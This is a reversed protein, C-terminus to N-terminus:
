GSSPHIPDHNMARAYTTAFGSYGESTSKLYARTLTHFEPLKHFPVNPFAHHEAHYPMNWALFRVARTTFTTRSNELMDAVPPCLGHEALLYLRLFPQGILVPLIWVWFLAPTVLLSLAALAYIGLLFRAERQMVAYQRQPLYPADFRGFANRVLVQAMARWYFWGSLYALLSPWSDPRPKGALEPDRKPDNTWKHHALHFYRFWIFPLAIPLACAHGVVENLWRTKFPTQHTCEHSLTFLFVLFLGQPLILLPWLPVLLLIGITGVALALGYVGLHRLGASDSRAMLAFKTEAPLAAILTRHDM